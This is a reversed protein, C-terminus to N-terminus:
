DSMRSFEELHPMLVVGLIDKSMYELIWDEKLGCFVKLTSWPPEPSQWCPFDDSGRLRVLVEKLGEIGALHRPIRAWCSAERDRDNRICDIEERIKGILHHARFLAVERSKEFKNMQDFSLVPDELDAIRAAEEKLWATEKPTLRTLQSDIPELFYEEIDAACQVRISRKKFDPTETSKTLAGLMLCVPKDSESAQAIGICVVLYIVIGLLKKMEHSGTLRGLTYKRVVGQIRQSCM